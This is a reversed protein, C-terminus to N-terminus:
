VVQKKVVNVIKEMQPVLSNTEIGGGGRWTVLHDAELDCLKFM